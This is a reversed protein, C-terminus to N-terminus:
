WVSHLDTTSVLALLVATSLVPLSHLPESGGGAVGRSVAECSADKDIAREDARQSGGFAARIKWKNRMGCQEYGEM